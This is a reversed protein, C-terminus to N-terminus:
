ERDQEFVGKTWKDRPMQKFLVWMLREFWTLSRYTGDARCMTDQAGLGFPAFIFPEDKLM